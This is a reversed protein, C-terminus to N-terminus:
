DGGRLANGMNRLMRALAPALIEPDDEQWAGLTGAARLLDGLVGPDVEITLCLVGRRRRDKFRLQRAAATM